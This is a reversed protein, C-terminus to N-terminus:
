VNLKDVEKIYEDYETQCDKCVGTESLGNYPMGCWECYETGVNTYSDLCNDCLTTSIEEATFIEKGCKTCWDSPQSASIYTKTTKKPYHFYKYDKYGDNSYWIGNDWIGMDENIIDVNGLDDMFTLKSFGIYEVILQKIGEFNLFNFPLNQLIMENFIRTDSKFKDTPVKSIIGNHVFGLKDNVLFPHINDETITGHSTLRFHMVVNSEVRKIVHRYHCIFAEIDFTKYTQLKNDEVWLMGMGDPNMEDMNRITKNKINEGKPIYAIICM